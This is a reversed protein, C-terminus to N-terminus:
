LVSLTQNNLVLREDLYEALVEQLVPRVPLPRDIERVQLPLSVEGQALSGARVILGAQGVGLRVEGPRDEVGHQLM